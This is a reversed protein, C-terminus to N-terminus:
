TDNATLNTWKLMIYALIVMSYENIFELYNFISDAHPRVAHVFM